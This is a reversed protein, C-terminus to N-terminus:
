ELCTMYMRTSIINGLGMDVILEVTYQVLLCPFYLFCYTCCLGTCLIFRYVPLGSWLKLLNSPILIIRLFVMLALMGEVAACSTERSWTSSAM